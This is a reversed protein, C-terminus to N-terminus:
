TCTQQKVPIGPFDTMGGDYASNLAPCRFLSPRHGPCYRQFLLFDLRAVRKIGEALDAKQGEATRGALDRHHVAHQNIFLLPDTLFAEQM